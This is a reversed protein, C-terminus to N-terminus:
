RRIFDIIMDFDIQCLVLIIAGFALYPGFPLFKKDKKQLNYIAIPLAMFCSIFLCVFSMKYGLMLAIVFMLKVDGFGLSKTKFVINSLKQLIYMVIFIVFAELLMFIVSYGMDMFGSIEELNIDIVVRLVIIFISLIVLIIDPIIMHHYDSATVIILGSFFVMYLLTYLFVLDSNRNVYFALAFLVGTLLELFANSRQIRENCYKCRGRHTLLRTIYLKEFINLKHSCYDCNFNISTISNKKGLVYGIKVFLHGLLLGLIFLLVIYVLIM